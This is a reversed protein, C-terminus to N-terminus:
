NSAKESKEEKKKMITEIAEQVITGTLEPLTKFQEARKKLETREKEIKAFYKASEDAYLYPKAETMEKEVRDLRKTEATYETELTKLHDHTDIAFKTSGYEGIARMARKQACLMDIQLTENTHKAIIGEMFHSAKEKEQKVYAEPYRQIEEITKKADSVISRVSDYKKDGSEIGSCFKYGMETKGKESLENIASKLHKSVYSGFIEVVYEKTRELESAMEERFVKGTPKGMLKGYNYVGEDTRINIGELDILYKDTSVLTGSNYKSNVKSNEGGTRLGNVINELAM